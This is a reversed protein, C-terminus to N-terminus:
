FACWWGSCYEIIFFWEQEETVTSIFNGTVLPLVKMLELELLTKGYYEVQCSINKILGSFAILTICM